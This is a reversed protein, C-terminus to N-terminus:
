IIYILCTFNEACRRAFLLCESFCFVSLISFVSLGKGFTTHTHTHGPTLTVKTVSDPLCVWPPPPLQCESAGPVVRLHGLRWTHGEGGTIQCKETERARGKKRVM